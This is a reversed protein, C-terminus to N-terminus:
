LFSKLYEKRNKAEATYDGTPAYKIYQDYSKIADMTKRQEELILGAFFASDAQGKPDLTFSKNYAQLAEFDNGSAQYATALNYWAGANNPVLKIVEKYNAIAEQNEAHSQLEIAKALLQDAKSIELAKIADQYSTKPNLGYAKKYNLLAQTSQGLAQYAAGLNFFLADDTAKELALKEYITIAENYKGQSQLTVAQKFADAVFKEQEDAVLAEIALKAERHNPNINLANKYAKQARLIDEKAQFATGINYHIDANNPNLGLAKVYYSISEDLSGQKQLTVARDLFLSVQTKIQDEKLTALGNTALQNNPEIQLARNFSREAQIFDGKLQYATALGVYNNALNPAIRIAALWGNILASQAEANSPDLKIAQEYFGIGSSIKGISVNIDGLKMLPKPNQPDLIKAQELADLASNIYSSDNPSKLALLHYNTAIEVYNDSSEKFRNIERLEAIAAKFNEALRESRAELFRKVTDTAKINNESLKFELNARAVDNEYNYYIANRFERSAGRGDTREALYKGYNNHAISLNSKVQENEPDLGLAKTFSNIALQYNRNSHYNIGENILRAIESKLTTEARLPLALNALVIIATLSIQILKKQM